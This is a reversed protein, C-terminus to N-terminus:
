ASRKWTAPGGGLLVRACRWRNPRFTKLVNTKNQRFKVMVLWYCPTYTSDNERRALDEESTANNGGSPGPTGQGGPISDIAFSTLRTVLTFRECEWISPGTGTNAERGPAARCQRRSLESISARSAAMRSARGPAATACAPPALVWALGTSFTTTM